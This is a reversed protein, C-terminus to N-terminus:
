LMMYIQKCVRIIEEKLNVWIPSNWQRPHTLLELVPEGREIAAIAKETFLEMEVQDAIRCTLMNMHPKDYAERVIGCTKRVRGDILEKNLYQFKTNVYDGHSAITLCPQGTKAKFEAYQKIFLDRIDELHLLMEQKTRIRHKYCYTAIEEYHYSAEGGARVIDKMLDVDITNWRFYYSCKAGYKKELTLMSRLITFDATDVDRRLILFKKGQRQRDTQGVVNEFSLITHIEYGNDCAAKLIREYESEKSPRFFDNYLRTKINM